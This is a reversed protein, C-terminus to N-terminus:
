FRKTVKPKTSHYFFCLETVNFFTPIIKAQSILFYPIYEKLICQMM